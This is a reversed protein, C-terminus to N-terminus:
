NSLVTLDGEIRRLVDKVFWDEDEVGLVGLQWNATLVMDGGKRTVVSFSLPCSTANAPQSMVLREIDWSRRNNDQGAGGSVAGPTTASPDFVVANSIEYSSGRQEGLKELTWQRINSLYKMLGIPQNVLTSASKALRTTTNRVADWFAPDSKLDIDQQARPSTEYIASVCNVMMDDSYPKVLGRLDVVIQGIFNDIPASRTRPDQLAPSSSLARVILQNILGTFRAGGKERCIQLVADLREKPVVLIAAGTRFEDPDDPYSMVEGTWTGDTADEKQFELRNRVFSPLYSGFLTFLLYGLSIKLTCADELSPPLPFPDAVKYIASHDHTRHAVRLGELFTKHFVLGSRGDGVSHSYAFIIYVKTKADQTRGPLPVVVIKWPPVSEVDDFMKDHTALLVRRLAEIEDGGDRPDYQIVQVHRRLDMGEKPRVFVPNETDQGAIATSLIPHKDIYWKLAPFYSEATTADFANAYTDNNELTYLGTMTLARYFGLSHRTIYRRENKSAARLIDHNTQAM